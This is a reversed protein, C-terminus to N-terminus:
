NIPQLKTGLEHLTSDPSVLAHLGDAELVM